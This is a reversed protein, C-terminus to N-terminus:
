GPSFKSMRPPKRSYLPQNTVRYLLATTRCPSGSISSHMDTVFAASQCSGPLWSVDRAYRDYAARCNNYFTEHLHQLRARVHYLECFRKEIAVLSLTAQASINSSASSGIFFDIDRSAFTEWASITQELLRLLKALLREARTHWTHFDQLERRRESFSTPSCFSFAELM